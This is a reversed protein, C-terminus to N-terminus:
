MLRAQQRKRWNALRLNLAKMSNVGQRRARSFLILAIEATM